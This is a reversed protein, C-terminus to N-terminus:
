KSKKTNDKTVMDRRIVGIQYQMNSLTEDLMTTLKNGWLVLDEVDVDIKEIDARLTDDVDDDVYNPLKTTKVKTINEMTENDM